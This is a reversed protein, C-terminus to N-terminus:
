DLISGGNNGSLGLASLNESLESLVSGPMSPISDVGTSAISMSTVSGDGPYYAAPGGHTRPTHIGRYPGARSSSHRSSGLTNGHVPVPLSWDGISYNGASGTGSLMSGAGAGFFVADDRTLSGGHLSNGTWSMSDDVPGRDGRMATSNNLSSGLGNSANLMQITGTNDSSTLNPAAWNQRVQDLRMAQRATRSQSPVADSNAIASIPDTLASIGSMGSVASGTPGSLGSILSAEGQQHEPPPHFARGFAEDPVHSRAAPVEFEHVPHQQQQQKMVSAAAGSVAAGVRPAMGRFGLNAYFPTSGQQQRQPSARPQPPVVTHYSGQPPGLKIEQFALTQQQHSQPSLHVINRGSRSSSSSASTVKGGRASVATASKGSGGSSSKTIPPIPMSAKPTTPKIKQNGTKPTAATSSTTVTTIPERRISPSSTSIAAIKKDEGGGDVDKDSKEEPGRIDPADERLAQGVKKIAKADGIDWWAGDSDEKLFRGSPNMGRIYYVVDAAIHAKELKKTEKALYDKKRDAVIERFQVNGVHANIRGGRGSLVDNINPDHVPGIGRPPIAIAPRPQATSQKKKAAKVAAAGNPATMGGGFFTNVVLNGAAQRRQRKRANDQFSLVPNPYAGSNTTDPTYPHPDTYYSHQLTNSHQLQQAFVDYLSANNYEPSVNTDARNNRNHNNPIRNSGSKDLKRPPGNAMTLTARNNM